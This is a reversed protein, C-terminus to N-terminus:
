AVSRSLPSIAPSQWEGQSSTSSGFSNGTDPSFYDILQGDRWLEYCAAADQLLMLDMGKAIAAFPGDALFSSSGLLTRDRTYLVAVYQSSAVSLRRRRPSLANM